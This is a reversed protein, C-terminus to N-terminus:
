QTEATSYVSFQGTVNIHKEYNQSLSGSSTSSSFSMGSSLENGSGNAISYTRYNASPYPGPTATMSQDVFGNYLKASYGMASGTAVRGYGEGCPGISSCSQFGAKDSATLYSDGVTSKYGSYSSVYANGVSDVSVINHVRTIGSGQSKISYYDQVGSKIQSNPEYTHSYSQSTGSPGYATIDTIAYISSTSQNDNAYAGYSLFVFIFLLIFIKKM